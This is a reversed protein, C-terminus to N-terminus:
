NMKDLHDPLLAEFAPICEHVIKEYFEKRSETAELAPNYVEDNYERYYTWDQDNQFSDDQPTKLDNKDIKWFGVRLSWREFRLWLDYKTQSGIELKLEVYDGRFLPFDYLNDRKTLWWQDENAEKQPNDFKEPDLLFILTKNDLFTNVLLDRNNSLFWDFGSKNTKHYLYISDWYNKLKFTESANPISLLKSKILRTKWIHSPDDYDKIIELTKEEIQDMSTFSSLLQYCIFDGRNNKILKPEVLLRQCANLNNSQLYLENGNQFQFDTYTLLARIFLTRLQSTSGQQKETFDFIYAVKELIKALEDMHITDLPLFRLRRNLVPVKEAKLFADEWDSNELIRKAKTIEEQFQHDDFGINKGSSLSENTLNSYIDWLKTQINNLYVLVNKFNANLEVNTHITLNYLVRFWSKFNDEINQDTTDIPLNKFFLYTGYFLIKSQYTARPAKFFNLPHNNEETLVTEYGVKIIRNFRILCEFSNFIMELNEDTLLEQEKYFSFPLYAYENTIYDQDYAIKRADEYFEIKSPDCKQVYLLQFFNRFIRMFAHNVITPDGALQEWLYDTWDMDMLHKWDLVENEQKSQFTFNAKEEHLWAKFNEFDTLPLGRANMKVYLADTQEIEELNLCSFQIHKLRDVLSSQFESKGYRHHIADLMELIGTVTPDKEWHKFFWYADKITISISSSENFDTIKPLQEVLAQCFEESSPRITYSFQLNTHETGNRSSVYLHILFLTTLRQQGDLPVFFKNKETTITKGYIFNLHLTQEQELANFLTGVFSERLDTTKSDQRGQAYDRQILPIQISGFKSTFDTYNYLNNDM